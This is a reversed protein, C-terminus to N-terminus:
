KNILITKNDILPNFDKIKVLQMQYEDFSNRTPDVDAIKFSRVFLINNNRFTPVVLYDLNNNKPQTIIESRYKNWPITRKFRQKINESFKIRDNISM